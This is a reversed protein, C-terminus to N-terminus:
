LVERSPALGEHHFHHLGGRDEILRARVREDNEVFDAAARRGEVAQRNGPGGDLMQVLAIATPREKGRVKVLDSGQRRTKWPQEIGGGADLFPLALDNKQM